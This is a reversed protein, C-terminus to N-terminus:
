NCKLQDSVEILQWSNKRKKKGGESIDKLPIENGKKTWSTMIEADLNTQPYIKEWAWEYELTHPRRNKTCVM